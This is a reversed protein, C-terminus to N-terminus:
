DMDDASPEDEERQTGSGEGGGESGGKRQLYAEVEPEASGVTFDGDKQNKVACWRLARAVEAHARNRVRNRVGMNTCVLTHQGLCDMPARCVCFKRSGMVPLLMRVQFCLKFSANNMVNPRYGPNASLWLGSDKDGNALGQRRIAAEDVSLSRAAASVGAAPSGGPLAALTRARRRKQLQKTIAGQMKELQVGTWIDGVELGDLCSVGAQRLVDVSSILEAMYPPTAPASISDGVQGVEDALRRIRPACEIMSAAYAAHRLEIAPTMGAGGLRLSLFLRDIIAAMEESEEPPLLKTAATLTFVANAVATDTRCAGHETDSPPV